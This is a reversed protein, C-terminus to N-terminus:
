DDRLLTLDSRKEAPVDPPALYVLAELAQAAALLSDWQIAALEQNIAKEPGLRVRQEFYRECAALCSLMREPWTEDELEPAHGSRVMNALADLEHELPDIKQRRLSMWARRRMSDTPVPGALIPDDSARLEEVRRIAKSLRDLYRRSSVPPIEGSVVLADRWGALYRLLDSQWRCADAVREGPHSGVAERRFDEVVQYLHIEQESAMSPPSQERAWPELPPSAPERVPEQEVPDPEPAPPEPLHLLITGSGGGRGPLARLTLTWVSERELDWPHVELEIAQPSPGSRRAQHVRGPSRELRFSLIRPGSWESVISLTGPHGVEFELEFSVAQGDPIEFTYPRIEAAGSSALWLAAFVAM